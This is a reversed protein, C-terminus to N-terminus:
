SRARSPADTGAAYIGEVPLTEAQAAAACLAAASAGVIVRFRMAGGEGSGALAYIECGEFACVVPLQGPSACRAVGPGGTGLM